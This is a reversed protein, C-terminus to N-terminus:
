ADDTELLMLFREALLFDARKAAAARAAEEDEGWQEIQWDEDVRSIPWAAAASLRGHLIALGLVLSGSLAVLDHLATLRFPELAAVRAALRALAEAPQARPVIGATTGLRAGLSEAAWALLPDWAAAQRAALAQPAEARYCLLDSLGYASLREAIEARSPTARDIAANAVGTLPMTDPDIEEAQRNWELAIAEALARSPLVLPAGAPSRAPAADLRV